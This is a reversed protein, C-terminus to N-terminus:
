SCGEEDSGDTCHAYGDCRADSRVPQGSECTHYACKREDSGDACDASGDCVFAAPVSEGDACTLREQCKAWCRQLWEPAGNRDIDAYESCAIRADCHVQCRREAEDCMEVRYDRDCDRVKELDRECRDEACAAAFFSWMCLALRATELSRM